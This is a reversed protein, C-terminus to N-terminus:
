ADYEIRLPCNEEHTKRAYKRQKEKFNLPVLWPNHGRIIDTVYVQCLCKVTVYVQCLTQTLHIDSVSSVNVSSVNGFMSRVSSMCKVCVSSVSVGVVRVACVCSVGVVRVACVCSELKRCVCLESVCVVCEHIAVCVHCV